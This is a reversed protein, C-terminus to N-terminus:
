MLGNRRPASDSRRWWRGEFWALLRLGGHFFILLAVTLPLISGTMLSVNSEQYFLPFLITAGTVAELSTMQPSNFLKELIALVLGVLSMGLLIGAVGFNM